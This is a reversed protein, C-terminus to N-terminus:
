FWDTKSIAVYTGTGLFITKKDDSLIVDNVKNKTGLGNSYNKFTFNDGSKTAIVLGYIETGMYLTNDNIIKIVEVGNALEPSNFTKTTYNDGSKKVETLGGGDYTAAYITNGDSSVAISTSSISQGDKTIEKNTWKNDTKTFVYLRTGGSYITNGNNLVALQYPQIYNVTTIKDWTYTGDKQKTGITIGGEGCVYLTDGNNTAVIGEPEHFNPITNWKFTYTGDAQKTGIYVGGEGLPLGTVGYVKDGNNTITLDLITNTEPLGKRYNTWKYTGDAQRNGIVIGGTFTAVYLTQGNNTQKLPGCGPLDTVYFQYMKFGNAITYTNTITQTNKNKSSLSLSLTTTLTQQESSNTYYGPYATLIYKNESNKEVKLNSTGKFSLVIKDIASPNSVAVKKADNIAKTVQPTIDLTSQPASTTSTKAATSTVDSSISDLEAKLTKALADVYYSAVKGSPTLTSDKSSNDNKNNCSAAVLPTILIPTAVTLTKILKYKKM